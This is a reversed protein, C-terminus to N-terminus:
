SADIRVVITTINDDGGNHNARDILKKCADEPSTSAHVIRAIDPDPIMGSLGDSCLLYHDGLEPADHGIDIVVSDQMGMARTIVNRPLEAKQEESLDPMALLYDNVLSHDRTLLTISTGRIRYCRSDGVHAVFMRGRAPSFLAAVLTTGMGQCDRSQLSREYIQRNALRVGTLLRNEEETINTDFHFPWTLEENAAQEFFAAIAETGIKSAVDGARHGGMGDCVVYLGEAERSVYADENHERQRGVDTLGAVTARM